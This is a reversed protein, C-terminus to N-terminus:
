KNYLAYMYVLVRNGSPCSLKEYITPQSLFNDYSKATTACSNPIVLHPEFRNEKPLYAVQTQICVFTRYFLLQGAFM